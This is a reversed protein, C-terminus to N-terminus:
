GRCVAEKELDEYTPAIVMEEIKKLDREEGVKHFTIWHCDTLTFVGRKTAAPSIMAMPGKLYQSGGYETRVLVEGSLLVNPHSHRHIKGVLLQGAPIKIERMYIGDAFSHKLWEKRDGIYAGPVKSIADELTILGKRTTLQQDILQEIETETM